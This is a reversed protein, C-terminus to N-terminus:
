MAYPFRLAFFLFVVCDHHIVGVAVLGDHLAVEYLFFPLLSVVANHVYALVGGGQRLAVRNPRLVGGFLVPHTPETYVFVGM